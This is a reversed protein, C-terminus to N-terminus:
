IYENWSLTYVHNSRNLVTINSVIVFINKLFLFFYKCKDSSIVLDYICM